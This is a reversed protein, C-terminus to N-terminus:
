LSGTKRERASACWRRRGRHRLCDRPLGCTAAISPVPTLSDKYNRLVRIAHLRGHLGPLDISLLSHSKLVCSTGGAIIAQAQEPRHIFDTRQPRLLSVLFEHVWTSGVRMPSSVLVNM